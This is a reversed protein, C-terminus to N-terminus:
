VRERCSARGIEVLPAGAQWIVGREAPHRRAGMSALRAELQVRAWQVLDDLWCLHVVANVWAGSDDAHERTARAKVADLSTPDVPTACPHAARYSRPGVGDSEWGM